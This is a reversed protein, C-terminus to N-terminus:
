KSESESFRAINKIGRVHLHHWETSAFCILQCSLFYIKLHVAVLSSVVHTFTFQSVAEFRTIIFINSFINVTSNLILCNDLSSSWLILFGDCYFFIFWKVMWIVKAKRFSFKSFSLTRALGMGLPCVVNFGHWNSMSIVDIRRLDFKWSNGRWKRTSKRHLKSPQFIWTTEVYNKRHLKWPRFVWTTEM